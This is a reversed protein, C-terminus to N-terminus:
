RIHLLLKKMLLVEDGLNYFAFMIHNARLFNKVMFEKLSKRKDVHFLLIDNLSSINFMIYVSVLVVLRMNSVYGFDELMKVARQKIASSIRRRILQYKRILWRRLKKIISPEKVKIKLCAELLDDHKTFIDGTKLEINCDNIPACLFEYSMIEDLLLDNEYIDCM